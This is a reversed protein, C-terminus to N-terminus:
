AVIDRMVQMFYREHSAYLYEQCLSCNAAGRDNGTGEFIFEWKTISGQFRCSAINM